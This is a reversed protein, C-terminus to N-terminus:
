LLRIGDCALTSFAWMEQALRPFRRSYQEAASQAVETEQGAQILAIACGRFGAGSFRAGFVGSSEALCETLAIMETSGTEYNSISSQCSANMLQGFSVFDSQRWASVGAEVRTTETFFHRARRRSVPSLNSEHTQWQEHTSQGLPLHDISKGVTLNALEAGAQFCEEVRNNFKGSNILPEKIGSFVALFTFAKPQDHYTHAHQKCDIHTLRGQRALAIASQDLIGNKLGLFENEIVRDFEIFEDTSCDIENVHAIAKLYGLGVAASSSIGAESLHGDILISLGQNIQKKSSMANLAGRAYDAWDYERGVNDLPITIPTPYGHSTIEIVKRNNAVFALHIGQDAAIASVTGLQHDVHAGLPCIRYPSFIADVRGVPVDYL